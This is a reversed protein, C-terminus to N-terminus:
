RWRTPPRSTTPAELDLGLERLARLHATRSDREVALAPHAKLGFRGEVYAGKDRIAAQAERMRDLAECARELIALHHAEMEYNAVISSWLARAEGSLHKPATPLRKPATMFNQDEEAAPIAQNSVV